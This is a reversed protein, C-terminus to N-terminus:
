LTQNIELTRKKEELIYAEFVDDVKIDNFKELSIGCELGNKVEKVDDKFRKLSALQGDHLIKGDRLLRIHCGREIKGDIVQTGAIVGVNPINFTDKVQARGIFKESYEPELLGELALKVDEILEYIISYTKVDIGYNEALRRATNIPRMNFGMIYGEADKALKVDNDNIGGVGGGIVKVSVEENGMGEVANKIAEFSGQVDARVILNLVKNNGEGAADAFFDELSMVKKPGQELLKRDNVRNDVVKKAERENKVVNLQDGPQPAGNLGIVSVPYSPGASKVDKGAYDTLTRARGYSEGVVISDGKKLTGEQILVTTVAGRGVEVKSEIVVGQAKGKTEARLEMIEAQLAIAELLEDIGEGKLASIPIFQTDGGWDEPTLNFEVLEQKIRDPNSGEKDMKNIAVILPVEAQQCFRISERTQPMVGDDAAVVLVVIDTINAGRERIASFASHGPTDLFTITSGKVEVNYAGIHQTIGGAEGQAVKTSRIHDVLTTKGHDVHGMITIVPARLPLDSKSEQSTKGSLVKEENFARNEVRYNYLNAIEETLKLGLADDEKLLLNIELVKDALTSFKTSLKQALDKATVVDHIVVLRKSDKIETIETEKGVGSFQRKRKAPMYMSRGMLGYSRMEEEAKMQTLDRSKSNKSKSMMAALGGLRKKAAAQKKKGSESIDADGEKEKAETEKKEPVYIPTFSHFKKTQLEPTKEKEEDKEPSKEVPAESVIELKRQGELKTELVPTTTEESKEAIDQSVESISTSTESTAELTEEELTPSAEESEALKKEQRKVIVAASRRKVTATPSAKPAEAVSEEKKTTAKKTTKKRVAKKKTVKKEPAKVAFFGRIKEVDEPALTVMHNKVSMGEQAIKELLDFSGVGLEKALQFVKM